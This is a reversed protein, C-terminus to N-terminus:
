PGGELSYIIYDDPGIHLWVATAFVNGNVGPFHYVPCKTFIDVLPIQGITPELIVPKFGPVIAAQIQDKTWHSTNGPVYSRGWLPFPLRQPTGFRGDIPELRLQIFLGFSIVSLCVVVVLVVSAAAVTTRRPRKPRPMRM